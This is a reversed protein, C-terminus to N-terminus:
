NGYNAALYDVVLTEEDPTLKAGRAIMSDVISKWDAASLRQSEARSLTHCTTCRAQLLKAGESSSTSPATTTTAGSSCATILFMLIFVVLVIINIRPKM